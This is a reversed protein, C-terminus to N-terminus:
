LSILDPLFDIAPAAGIQGALQGFRREVTESVLGRDAESVVLRLTAGSLEMRIRELLPASRGSFVAGVRMALGLTRATELQDATLLRLDAAPPLFRRKYRVGVAQAIFAREAHSVGAYPARLAQDYAMEARHDPHFRGASDALLCAAAIVRRDDDGKGFLGGRGAIVPRVFELLAEGFAVQHADLRSFAIAGDLLPDRGAPRTMDQVVGERLGTSSIIVEKVGTVRVLEDLVLGSLHLTPARRRTLELLQERTDPDRRAAVVQKATARVDEPTMRYAQLVGLPYTRRAMDVKAFGRWAGGVAYLRKPKAAPFHSAALVERIRERIVSAPATELDALALPGLMHTEGRPAGALGLGHLELSSGGLDGVLGSPAYMGAAVGAASLRGEDLGSLVRLEVGIVTAAERAFARGDEAVRVAATAVARVNGVDLATLIARYRALAKLAAQRGEPSLQGTQALGRGLGAMVKENFVPLASAHWVQYIVLRVSNSGVDIVAARHAEPWETM